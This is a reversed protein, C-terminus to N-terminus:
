PLDELVARTRPRVGHVRLSIRVDSAGDDPVHRPTRPTCVEREQSLSFFFTPYSLYTPIRPRRVRVGHRVGYAM